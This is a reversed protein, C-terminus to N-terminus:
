NSFDHMSVSNFKHGYRAVLSDLDGERPVSHNHWYRTVIRDPHFYAMFNGYLEYESFCSAEDPDLIDLISEQWPKGTKAEIRGRLEQLHKSDFFMSHTVFSFRFRKKLGLFKQCPVFYPQNYENSFYFTYKGGEM